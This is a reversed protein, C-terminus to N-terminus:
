TCAGCFGYSYARVADEGLVNSVKRQWLAKEALQRWWWGHGLSVVPLDIFLLWLM